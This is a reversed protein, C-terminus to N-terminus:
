PNETRSASALSSFTRNKSLSNFRSYSYTKLFGIEYSHTQFSAIWSDAQSTTGAERPKRSPRHRRGQRTLLVQQHSAAPRTTHAHASRRSASTVLSVRIRARSKLSRCSNAILPTFPHILPGIPFSGPYPAAGCGFRAAQSTLHSILLSSHRFLSSARIDPRGKAM